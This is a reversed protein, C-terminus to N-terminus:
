VINWNMDLSGITASTFDLTMGDTLSTSAYIDSDKYVTLEANEPTMYQYAPYGNYLKITMTCGNPLEVVNTDAFAFDSYKMGLKAKFSVTQSETAYITDGEIRWMVLNITIEPRECVYVDVVKSYSSGGGGGFLAYNGITTAALSFRGTSLNNTPIKTLSDDYTDVVSSGGEGGAFIAYGGVTTAALNNRAMSLNEVTVKILSSDFADVTLHKTTGYSGGGFLAYNGVTTADFAERAQSLSLGEGKTLSSDYVQVADIPSTSQYGGGILAHNGITTAAPSSVSYNSYMASRTLSVNYCDVYSTRGNSRVGCCFLAYNGVTTAALHSRAYGLNTLTTRTLSTNYANATEYKSGTTYEGGAFIAHEGVTTAALSSPTSYLATATTRVLSDGNYADVTSKGYGGGFLAYNGVSTASLKSRAVSLDTTTGWYVLDNGGDLCPRAVGGIGIYAKKVRRATNDIGVYQKKVKRAVNDVGIYAGKTKSGATSTKKNGSFLTGNINSVVSVTYTTNPTLGIATLDLGVGNAEATLKVVTSGVTLTIEEGAALNRVAVRMTSSTIWWGTIEPILVITDPMDPMTAETSKQGSWLTGNIDTSVIVDYATGASLGDVVLDLSGGNTSTATKTQSGIKLTAVEGANLDKIRVGISNNTIFWSDVSPVTAEPTAATSNVTITDTKSGATVTITASGAALANIKFSGSTRSKTLDSYSVATSNSSAVSVSPTYSGNDNSISISYNITKSEGVTLSYSSDGSITVSSVSPSSTAADTTITGSWVTGSQLYYGNSNDGISATVSYSTSSSLGTVWVTHSSGTATITNSRSGATVTLTDGAMTGSFTCYISNSDSGYSSVGFVSVSIIDSHGGSSATIVASGISVANIINGSNTYTAVSSNSTTYTVSPSFSVGGPNYTSISAKFGGLSTGKLLRLGTFPFSFYVDTVYPTTYTRDIYSSVDINGAVGISSSTTKISLNYRYVRYGAEGSANTGAGYTLYYQASGGVSNCLSSAETESAYWAYYANLPPNTVETAVISKTYVTIVTTVTVVSSSSGFTETGSAGSWYYRSYWGSTDTFYNAKTPSFDAEAQGEVTWSIIGNQTTSGDHVKCRQTVSANMRPSIAM